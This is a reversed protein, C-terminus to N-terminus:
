NPVLTTGSLQRIADHPGLNPCSPSTTNRVGYKPSINISATVAVAPQSFRFFLEGSCATSSMRWASSAATTASMALGERPGGAWVALGGTVLPVSTGAGEGPGATM